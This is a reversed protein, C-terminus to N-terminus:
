WTEIPSFAKAAWAVALMVGWATAIWDEAKGFRLWQWLTVGLLGTLPITMPNFYLSRQWDGSALAIFSRTGGTTPCPIGTLGTLMSTPVHGSMLWSFNWVLYTALAFVGLWAPWIERGM